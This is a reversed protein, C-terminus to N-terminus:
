AVEFNIDGNETISSIAERTVEDALAEAKDANINKVRSRVEAAIQKLEAIAAAKRQKERAEQLLEYDAFPILVAKARGRNEIIVDDNNKEAWNIVSSFQERAESISVTKM